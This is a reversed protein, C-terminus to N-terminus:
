HAASSALAPPLWSYLYYARPTALDILQSLDFAPAPRSRSSGLLSSGLLAGFLTPPQEYHVCRVEEKSVGALEAARDIATEIFGIQDVLGREIAQRATFIQGTASKDLSEPDEQFRPRGEKIVEKFGAFSEDVLNQLIEREEATMPKTISGIDKYPGSKISDDKIFMGHMATSLDYHPIIVGISGTWTTPEAFISDPQDGVAMAMYYGGSACLSGMSVVLPLPEARPEGDANELRMRQLHHLLYDSGTVTGGPSNIRLVVAVVSDDEKVRDIQRKVFSSEGSLIPGSADIVAIKKLATKSLSHYKERPAGEPTFYSQYSGYLGIAVMIAVALAAILWKGYRGFASPPQQIIIQRAPPPNTPDM